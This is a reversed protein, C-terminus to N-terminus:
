KPINITNITNTYKSTNFTTRNIRLKSLRDIQVSLIIVQCKSVKEIRLGREIMPFCQSLMTMLGLELCLQLWALLFVNWVNWFELWILTSFYWVVLYFVFYFVVLYFVSLNNSCITNLNNSSM